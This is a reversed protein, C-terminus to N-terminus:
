APPNGTFKCTPNEPFRDQDIVVSPGRNFYFDSFAQQPTKGGVATTYGWKKSGSELPTWGVCNPLSQGSCYNVNQEHVYCSDVYPGSASKGALATSLNSLFMDRFAQVVSSASPDLVNVGVIITLQFCDYASNMIFIPTRIHPTIYPAM